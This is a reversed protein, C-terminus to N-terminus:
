TMHAKVQRTTKTAYVQRWPSNADKTLNPAQNSKGHNSRSSKIRKPKLPLIIKQMSFGWTKSVVRKLESSLPQWGYPKTQPPLPPQSKGQNSPSSTSKKYITYKAKRKCKRWVWMLWTAECTISAQIQKIISIMTSLYTTILHSGRKSSWALYSIINASNLM